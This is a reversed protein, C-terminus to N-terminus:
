CGRICGKFIFFLFCVTNTCASFLSCLATGVPINVESRETMGRSSFVLHAVDEHRPPPLSCGWRMRGRSSQRRESAGGGPSVAFQVCSM